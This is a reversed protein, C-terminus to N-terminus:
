NDPNTVLLKSVSDLEPYSEVLRLLGRQLTVAAAGHSRAQFAQPSEGVNGGVVLDPGVGGSVPSVLNIM